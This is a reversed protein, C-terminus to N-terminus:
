AELLARLVKQAERNGIAIEETYGKCLIVEGLGNVGLTYKHSGYKENVKNWLETTRNSIEKLM